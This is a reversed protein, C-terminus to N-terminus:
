PVARRRETESNFRDALERLNIVRDYGQGVFEVRRDLLVGPIGVKEPGEVDWVPNDGVFICEEPTARAVKLAHAYIHPDPKRWGVDRCFVSGSVRSAIGTRSLQERWLEAPSGWTTNSVIIAEFGLRRLADLFPLTDEYVRAQEFLPSMFSRCLRPLLHADNEALELTRSLRAELPRVM